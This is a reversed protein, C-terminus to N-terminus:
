YDPQKMQIVIPSNKDNGIVNIIDEVCCRDLIDKHNEIFELEQKTWQIAM